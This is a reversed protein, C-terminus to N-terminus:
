IGEHPAIRMYTHLILPLVGGEGVGVGGPLIM